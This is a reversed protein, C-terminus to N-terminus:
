TTKATYQLTNCHTGTLPQINLVWVKAWITPHLMNQHTPAQLHCHPALSLQFSISCYSVCGKKTDCFSGPWEQVLHLYDFGFDAKASAPASSSARAYKLPVAQALGLVSAAVFAVAQPVIHSLMYFYKYTYRYIPKNTQLNTHVYTCIYEHAPVCCACPSLTSSHSTTIANSLPLASSLGHALDLACVFACATPLCPVHAHSFTSARQSPPPLEISPGMRLGRFFFLQLCPDRPQHRRCHPPCQGV